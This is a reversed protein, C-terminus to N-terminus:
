HKHTSAWAHTQWRSQGFVNHKLALAPICVNICTFKSSQTVLEQADRKHLWTFDYRMISISLCIDRSELFKLTLMSLHVLCSSNICGHASAASPKCATAAPPILAWAHISWRSQRARWLCPRVCVWVASCSEPYLCCGGPGWVPGCVKRGGGRRCCGHCFCDNFAHEPEVLQDQLLWMLLLWQIRLKAWHASGPIIWLLLLSSICTGAWCAPKCREALHTGQNCHM